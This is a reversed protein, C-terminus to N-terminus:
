LALPCGEGEAHRRRFPFESVSLGDDHQFFLVLKRGALSELVEEPLTREPVCHAIWVM